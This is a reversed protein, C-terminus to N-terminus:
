EGFGLHRIEHKKYQISHIISENKGYCWGVQALSMGGKLLDLVKV